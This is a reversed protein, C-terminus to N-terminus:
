QPGEHVTPVAADGKSLALGEWPLTTLVEALHDRSEALSPVDVPRGDRVLAV